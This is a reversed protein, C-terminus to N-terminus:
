LQFKHGRTSLAQDCRLSSFHGEEERSGRCCTAVVRGRVPQPLSRCDLADWGFRVLVLFLPPDRWEAPETGCECRRALKAHRMFRERKIIPFRCTRRILMGIVLM